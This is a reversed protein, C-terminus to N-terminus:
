EGAKVHPDRQAARAAIWAEVEEILWGVARGGLPIPKPFRGEVIDQQIATRGRGTMAELEPWRIIRRLGSNATETLARQHQAQRKAARQRGRLERSRADMVIKKTSMDFIEV